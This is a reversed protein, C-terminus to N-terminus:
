ETSASTGGARPGAASQLAGSEFVLVAAALDELATGVSKFVTRERAATRATAEGRCLRALTGRVDSAAFVGRSMPGILEGSKHWAEETDVYISAGRFCGDDAERMTPTFSGILDLHTGDRLWEGRILPETALTACSVIDAAAVAEALDGAVNANIGCERWEAVRQAAAQPRRSWVTVQTIPLVNRYAEPLLRAVRGAGVVLLRHADPRALHSAALASAAATRRSTIEDGDMQALPVGSRADYLLYTSHLGPLGRRSNGPAIMVTKIGLYRDTQWAPMILVTLGGDDAPLSHVHRPPVECGTAFMQALAPVLRDFGLAARTTNTDFTKM